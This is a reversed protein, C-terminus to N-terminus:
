TRVFPIAPYRFPREGSAAVTAVICYIVDVLMTIWILGLWGFSAFFWISEATTAVGHGEIAMHALSGFLSAVFLIVCLFWVISITIQFNLAERAHELAFPWKENRVKFYILVTGIINAFPINAFVLLGSLNAFMAWNREEASIAAGSGSVM